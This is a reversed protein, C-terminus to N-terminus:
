REEISNLVLERIDEFQTDLFIKTINCGDAWVEIIEFEADCGIYGDLNSSYREEKEAKQYNGKITLPTDLYTIEVTKKM